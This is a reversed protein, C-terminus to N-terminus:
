EPYKAFLNQPKEKDQITSIDRVTLHYEIDLNFHPVAVKLGDIELPRDPATGDHHAKMTLTYKGSQLKVKVGLAAVALHTYGGRVGYLLRYINNEPIVIPFASKSIIKLESDKPNSADEVGFKKEKGSKDDRIIIKVGKHLKATEEAIKLLQSDNEAGKHELYSSDSTAALILIEADSPVDCTRTIKDEYTTTGPIFWVYYRGQNRAAREGTFDNAPNKSADQTLTWTIYEKVDEDSPEKDNVTLEEL